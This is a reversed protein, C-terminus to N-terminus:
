ILPNLWLGTLWTLSHKSAGAENAYYQIQVFLLSEWLCCASSANDSAALLNHDHGLMLDGPYPLPLYCTTCAFQWVCM